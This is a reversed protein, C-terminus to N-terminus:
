RTISRIMSRLYSIVKWIYNFIIHYVEYLRARWTPFELWLRKHRSGLNYSDNIGHEEMFKVSFINGRHKKDNKGLYWSGSENNQVIIDGAYCAKYGEKNSTIYRYVKYTLDDDDGFSDEYIFNSFGGISNFLNKKIGFNSGQHGLHSYLGHIGNKKIIRGKIYNYKLFYLEYRQLSNRKLLPTDEDLFIM